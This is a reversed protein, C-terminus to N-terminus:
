NANKSPPLYELLSNVTIRRGQARGIATLSGKAAAKEVARRGIGLYREAIALNVYQKGELLAFDGKDSEPSTAARRQGSLEEAVKPRTDNTLGCANCRWSDRYVSLATGCRQCLMGPILVVGPSAQAAM